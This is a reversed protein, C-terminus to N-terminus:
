PTAEMLLKTPDCSTLKRYILVKLEKEKLNWTVTTLVQLNNNNQTKVTHFCTQYTQSEM